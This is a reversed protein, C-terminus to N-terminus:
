DEIQKERRDLYEQVDRVCYEVFSVVKVNTMIEDMYGVVDGAEVGEYEPLAQGIETYRPEWCNKMHIDIYKHVLNYVMFAIHNLIIMTAHVPSTFTYDLYDIKYRYIDEGSLDNARAVLILVNPKVDDYEVHFMTRVTQKSVDELGNMVVDHLDFVLTDKWGDPEELFELRFERDM